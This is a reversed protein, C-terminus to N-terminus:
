VTFVVFLAALFGIAGLDYRLMAAVFLALGFGIARPMTPKKILRLAPYLILLSGLILFAKHIPGHVLITLGAVYLAWPRPMLMRATAFVLADKVALVLICLSSLTLLSPGFLKFALAILYFRGPGYPEFFDRGPVQGMLLRESDVCAVGLDVMNQVGYRFYLSHFLLSVVAVAAAALIERYGSVPSIIGASDPTSCTM